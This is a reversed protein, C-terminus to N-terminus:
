SWYWITVVGDNRDAGDVVAMQGDFRELHRQLTATRPRPQEMMRIPSARVGALVVLGDERRLANRAAHTAGPIAVVVGDHFTEERRDFVLEALVERAATVGLHLQEVIDLHEVVLLASM